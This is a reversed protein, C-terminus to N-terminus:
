SASSIPSDITDGGPTFMIVHLMHWVSSYGWQESLIVTTNIEIANFTYVVVGSAIEEYVILISHV